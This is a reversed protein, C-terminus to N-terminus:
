KKSCAQGRMSSGHAAGLSATFSRGALLPKCRHRKVAATSWSNFHHLLFRLTATHARAFELHFSQEFPCLCLLSGRRPCCPLPPSLQSSSFSSPSTLAKFDEFLRRENRDELSRISSFFSQVMVGYILEWLGM